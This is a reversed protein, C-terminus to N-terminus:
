LCALKFQVALLENELYVAFQHRFLMGGKMDLLAPCARAHFLRWQEGSTAGVAITQEWYDWTNGVTELYSNRLLLFGILWKLGLTKTFV